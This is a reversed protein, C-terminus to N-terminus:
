IEAVITVPAGDIGSIMLPLCQISVPSTHLQSLDMDEVLLLQREGGLFEKHAVRGLERNQFSTLSIFDMGVVRLKPFLQKLKYGMEPHLGPNNRWYKDENRFQGFETKIILFDIDSPFKTLVADSISVIENENAHYQLLFPKRFIWDKALYNESKRGDSFFHNPYDIHTGSHNHLTLQKTNASDGNEISRSIKVNVGKEGGYLPTLNDM